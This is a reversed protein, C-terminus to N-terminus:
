SLRKPDGSEEMVGHQIELVSDCHALTSPRHAIVIAAPRPQIARLRTLL